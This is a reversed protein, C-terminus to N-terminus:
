SNCRAYRCLMFYTISALDICPGHRYLTMRQDASFHSQQVKLWQLLVSVILQGHWHSKGMTSLMIIGLLMATIISGM